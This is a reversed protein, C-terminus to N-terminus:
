LDWGFIPESRNDTEPFSLGSGLAGAFAATFLFGECQHSVKEGRSSFSIGLKGDFGSGSWVEMGTLGDARRATARIDRKEDYEESAISESSEEPQIM